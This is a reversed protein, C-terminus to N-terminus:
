LMQSAVMLMLALIPCRVQQGDLQSGSVPRRERVVLVSPLLAALSLPLDQVCWSIDCAIGLQTLCV